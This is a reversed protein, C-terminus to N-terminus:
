HHDLGGKPACWLPSADLPGFFDDSGAHHGGGIANGSYSRFPAGGLTGPDTGLDGVGFVLLFYIWAQRSRECERYGTRNIRWDPRLVVVGGVNSGILCFSVGAPPTGPNRTPSEYQPSLDGVKSSVSM